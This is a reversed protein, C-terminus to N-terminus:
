FVKISIKPAHFGRTVIFQFHIYPFSFYSCEELCKRKHELFSLLAPKSRGSGDNNIMTMKPHVLRKFSESAACVSKFTQTQDERPLHFWAMTFMLLMETLIADKRMILYVTLGDAWGYHILFSGWQM